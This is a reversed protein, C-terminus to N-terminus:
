LPHGPHDTWLEITIDNLPAEEPTFELTLEAGTDKSSVSLDFRFPPIDMLGFLPGDYILLKAGPKLEYLGPDVGGPIPGPVYQNLAGINRWTLRAKVKSHALAQASEAGVNRLRLPVNYASKPIAAEITVPATQGKPLRIIAVKTEKYYENCAPIAFFCFLLTSVLCRNLAETISRRSIKM